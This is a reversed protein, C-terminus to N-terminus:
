YQYQYYNGLLLKSKSKSSTFGRYIMIHNVVISFATHVSLLWLVKRDLNGTTHMYRSAALWTIRTSSCSRQEKGRTPTRTWARAIREFLNLCFHFPLRLFKIWGRFLGLLWAWISAIAGSPPMLASMQQLEQNRARCNSAPIYRQSTGAAEDDPGHPMRPKPNSLAALKQERVHNTKNGSRRQPSM